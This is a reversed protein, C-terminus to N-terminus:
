WTPVGPQCTRMPDATIPCPARPTKKQPSVQVWGVRDPHRDYKAGGLYDRGGDLRKRAFWAAARHTAECAVCTQEDEAMPRSRRWSLGTSLDAWFPALM